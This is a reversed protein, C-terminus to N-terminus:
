SSLGAHTHAIIPRSVGAYRSVHLREYRYILATFFLSARAQIGKGYGSWGDGSGFWGTKDPVFMVPMVFDGIARMMDISARYM